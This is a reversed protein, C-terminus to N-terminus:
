DNIICVFGVAVAKGGEFAHAEIHFLPPTKTQEAGIARLLVVSIEAMDPKARRLWPLMLMM